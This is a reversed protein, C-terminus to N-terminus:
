ENLDVDTQRIKEARVLNPYSNSNEGLEFCSYPISLPYIHIWEFEDKFEDHTLFIVKNGM